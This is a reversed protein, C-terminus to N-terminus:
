PEAANDSLAVSSSAGFIDTSITYLPHAAQSVMKKRTSAETLAHVPPLPRSDM